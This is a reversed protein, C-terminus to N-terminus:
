KQEDDSLQDCEFRPWIWEGLIYSPWTPIFVQWWKWDLSLLVLDKVRDQEEHHAFMENGSFTSIRELATAGNAVVGNAAADAGNSATTNDGEEGQERPTTMQRHLTMQRKLPDEEDLSLINSPSRTDVVTTEVVEEKEEEEEGEKMPPKCWSALEWVRQLSNPYEASLLVIM